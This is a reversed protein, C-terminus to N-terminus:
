DAARSMWRRAFLRVSAYRVIRGVSSGVALAVTGIALILPLALAYMALMGLMTSWFLFETRGSASVTIVQVGRLM